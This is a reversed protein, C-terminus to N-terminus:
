FRDLLREIYDLEEQPRGAEAARRRLEELISRARARSMEDPIEVGNGDAFAGESPRGLPDRQQEGDGAQGQADQMRELLEQALQEAGSRLGSLADDQAELAAEADGQALADAAARMADGADALADGGGGPLAQQAQGLQRALDAQADSLSQMSNGGGNQNEAMGQPVNGDQQGGQGSSPPSQGGGQQQEENLGFTQDQLDRQGGIVDGLEELAQQIAESIPDSQEGEGNGQGMQMQMNRLLESLAQLAQRADATDGLEAAERLADLMAQLAAMDMSPGGSEASQESQGAERAMAALYNEMAAQYADFLAALETEDAGRAMAEMLAREAARLAAEADALSGLEARLAISWLDAELGDLDAQERARRLRQVSTRLGLYVVADDFFSAPADTIADLSRTAFQLGDPAREIRRAPEDTFYAPGPIIDERHMVPRDPLPAYAADANLVNRRQEAVARALADLFVRQPLTIGLEPSRGTNGGADDAVIRINVRQGALPHRATELLTRVGNDPDLTTVGAPTFDIREWPADDDDEPQIDLGYATAGYDDVVSFQLDLEGSATADPVALLRVVPARDPLVTLTWSQRTSGAALRINAERSVTLRADWVSDGISTPAARESGDGDRRTLAPARRSGAVRAIFSSGAPVEVSRTDASLFIPARGTYAPPDIWADVSVDLGGVTIPTLSFAEGLRDRAAPGALLWSLTLALALSGRLALRDYRAWAARPRRARAADLRRSMRLQHEKWVALALPDDTPPTDLLAEHPRAEIGSDEEVRRAMDEVSPWAFGRRGPRTLWIAGGLTGLAYLARWPDGIAEWLGLLSLVAFSALWALGPWVV